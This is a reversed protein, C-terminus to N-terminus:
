VSDPATHSRAAAILHAARAMAEASIQARVGDFNPGRTADLGM